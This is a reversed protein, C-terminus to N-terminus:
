APASGRVKRCSAPRDAIPPALRHRLPPSWRDKSGAALDGDARQAGVDRSQRQLISHRDVVDLGDAEALPHLNAEVGEVSEAAAFRSPDIRLHQAAETASHSRCADRDIRILQAMVVLLRDFRAREPEVAFEAEPRSAGIQLLQRLAFLLFDGGICFVSCGRARQLAQRRLVDEVFQRSAFHARPVSKRRAIDSQSDVPPHRAIKASIGDEHAFMRPACQLSDQKRSPPSRTKTSVSSFAAKSFKASTRASTGPNRAHVRSSFSSRTRIMRALPFRIFHEVQMKRLPM